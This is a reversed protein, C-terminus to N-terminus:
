HFVGHVQLHRSEHHLSSDPLTRDHMSLSIAHRHRHQEANCENMFARCMHKYLINVYPMGTCVPISTMTHPIHEGASMNFLKYLKSITRGSLDQTISNHGSGVMGLNTGQGDMVSVWCEEDEPTLTINKAWLM